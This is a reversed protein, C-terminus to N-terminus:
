GFRGDPFDRRVKASLRLVSAAAAVFLLLLAGAAFLEGDSLASSTASPDSFTLVAAVRRVARVAAQPHLATIALPRAKKARPVAHQRRSPAPTRKPKHKAKPKPKTNASTTTATASLGASPTSQQVAPAQQVIVPARTVPQRPSPKASSGPAADPQVQVPAPDPAPGTAAHAAGAVALVYVLVVASCRAPRGGRNRRPPAPASQAAVKGTM